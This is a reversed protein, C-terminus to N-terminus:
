WTAARAFVGKTDRLRVPGFYRSDFSGPTDGLLFLEDTELVRCETWQPLARGLRDRGMVRAKAGPAHLRDDRRCVQDGGAAAVRKLLMMDPPTGLGALYSRAAEPQAFAVLRGRDPSVCFRRLYLGPPLSRSENILVIKPLGAAAAHLTAAAAGAGVLALWGRRTFIRIM